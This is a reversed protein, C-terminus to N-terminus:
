GQPLTVTFTTGCGVQSEVSIQGQHLDVCTKVVALGLGTGTIDGVNQGRYFAEYLLPQDQAPIGIGWDQIQFTASEPTCTLRLQIPRNETASYKVANALLNSLISHLLKSDLCATTTQGQHIFRIPQQMGMSLQIEEILHFCFPELELPEPRFELKGMEARNLTLIDTLLQAMTKAAAQIRSLNKVKKDESWEPNSHALSQASVLITSLPTRFEHSIMSFLRLKLDSLERTQALEAIRAKVEIELQNNVEFLASEIQQRETIQRHLLYYVAALLAFCLSMGIINTHFTQQANQQAQSQWYQLHSREVQELEAVGQRIQQQIQRDGIQGPQMTLSNLRKVLLPTLRDLRRQQEVDAAIAQRLEALEVPATPAPATAADTTITLLKVLQAISEYTQEAAAKSKLLQTMSRASILNTGVVALLALGVGIAIMKKEWFWRTQTQQLNQLVQKLQEAQATAADARYRSQEYLEAHDIYAATPQLLLSWQRDAIQFSRTCINKQTQRGAGHGSRSQTPVRWTMEVGAKEQHPNASVQKTNSQYAALFSNGPRDSKDYLFFDINEMELGPLSARVIDAIRFVGLVFGRLNEQRDVVTKMPMDPCYIPLIVLFGFQKQAEQILEIRGSAVIAGTDRARELASRRTLDSGLDFGLVLENGAIPEIYLVPFYEPRQEARTVTGDTQQTVQFGPYGETQVTQEFSLRDPDSLRPLWELAHISPHRSLVPQVFRKFDQRKIQETSDYFQAISRLVEFCADISRELNVALIDAREQLETKM